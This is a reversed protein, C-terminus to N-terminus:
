PLQGSKSKSILTRSKWFAALVLGAGIVMLLIGIMLSAVFAFFAKLM